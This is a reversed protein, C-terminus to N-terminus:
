VEEPRLQSAVFPAESSRAERTGQLIGVWVRVADVVVIIVMVAFAGRM